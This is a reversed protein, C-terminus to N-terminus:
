FFVLSYGAPTIPWVYGGEGLWTWVYGLIRKSKGICTLWVKPGCDSFSNCYWFISVKKGTYTSLYNKKQTERSTDRDAKTM